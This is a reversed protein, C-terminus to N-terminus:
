GSAITLDFDILESFSSSKVITPSFLEHVLIDGGTLLWAIIYEAWTGNNDGTAFDFRITAISSTAFAKSKIKRAGLPTTLATDTVLPTTTGTGVGMYSLTIDSTEGTFIKAIHNLGGNTFVM